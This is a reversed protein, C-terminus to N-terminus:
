MFYFHLLLQLMRKKRSDVISRVEVAMHKEWKDGFALCLALMHNKAETKGKRHTADGKAKMEQWAENGQKSSSQLILKDGMQWLSSRQTKSFHAKMMKVVREKKVPGAEKMKKKFEKIKEMLEKHAQKKLDGNSVEDENEEKEDNEEKGEDAAEEKEESEEVDAECEDDAETEKKLKKKTSVQNKMKAVWKGKKVKATISKSAKNKAKAKPAM